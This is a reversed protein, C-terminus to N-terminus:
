RIRPQRRPWAQAEVELPAAQGATERRGREAAGQPIAVTARGVSGSNSQMSIVKPQPAIIPPAGYSSRAARTGGSTGSRCPRVCWSFQVRRHSSTRHVRTLRVWWGWTASRRTSMPNSFTCVVVGKTAFGFGPCRQATARGQGALSFREFSTLMQASPTPMPPSSLMETTSLLIPGFLVAHGYRDGLGDNVFPAPESVLQLDPLALGPRSRVFRYAEGAPSTLEGRRRIAYNVLEALKGAAFLRPTRVDFGLV